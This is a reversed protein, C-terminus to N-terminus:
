RSSLYATDLLSDLDRARFTFGREDRDCQKGLIQDAKGQLHLFPAEGPLPLGTLSAFLSPTFGFANRSLEDKALCMEVPV